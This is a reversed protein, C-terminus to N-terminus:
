SFKYVVAAQPHTLSLLQTLSLQDTLSLLKSLEMRRKNTLNHTPIMNLYKLIKMLYSLLKLKPQGLFTLRFNDGAAQVSGSM